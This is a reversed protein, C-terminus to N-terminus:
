TIGGHESFQDQTLPAQPMAATCRRSQALFAYAMGDAQSGHSFIATTGDHCRHAEAGDSMWRWIHMDSLDPWLTHVVSTMDTQCHIVERVGEHRKNHARWRPPRKVDHSAAVTFQGPQSPIASAM